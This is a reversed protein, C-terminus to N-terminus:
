SAGCGLVEAYIRAGRARARALSELVLVGAGEGLVFGDRDADFPRSAREPEDNRRSVAQMNGFAALSLPHMGAESGGCLVAPAAGTRILRAAEGIAHTGTACASVVSLTLGHFGHRIAI